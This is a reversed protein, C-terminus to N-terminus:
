LLLLFQYLRFKSNLATLQIEQIFEVFQQHNESLKEDYQFTTSSYM